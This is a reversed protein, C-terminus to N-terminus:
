FKRKPNTIVKKKRLLTWHLFNDKEVYKMKSCIFCNSENCVVKSSKKCMM